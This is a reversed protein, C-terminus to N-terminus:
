NNNIKLLCVKNESLTWKDTTNPEKESLICEINDKKLYIKINNNDFYIKNIYNDFIAIKLYFYVIIGFILLLIINRLFYFPKKLKRKKM